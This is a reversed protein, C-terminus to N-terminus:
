MHFRLTTGIVHIDGPNTRGDNQRLYYLDGTFHKNFKHSAGVTFRNRVWDNVSWDYFVEDAVFWNFQTGNIKFPHAVQLRNRYRTSDGQPQRYRREFQNRDSLTFKGAPASVTAAITLRDELGFRNDYPHTWIHLYSPFLTLYKGVKFSFGIGIREDVGRHINNGLRLTGLMVFDVKKSLPVALQVDNWLQTDRRPPRQTQASSVSACAALLMFMLAM